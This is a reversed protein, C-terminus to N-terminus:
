LFSARSYPHKHYGFVPEGDDKTCPSAIRSLQLQFKASKQRHTHIEIQRHLLKARLNVSFWKKPDIGIVRGYEYLRRDKDMGTAMGTETAMGMGMAIRTAMETAMGM